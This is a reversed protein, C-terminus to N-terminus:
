VIFAPVSATKSAYAAGVNVLAECTGVRVGLLGACEEGGGM